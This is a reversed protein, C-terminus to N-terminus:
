SLANKVKTDATRAADNMDDKVGEAVHKIDRQTGQSCGAAASAAVVALLFVAANKKM